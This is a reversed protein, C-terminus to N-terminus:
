TTWLQPPNAGFPPSSLCDQSPQHSTAPLIRSSTYALPSIPLPDSHSPCIFSLIHHPFQFLPCYQFTAFFYDFYGKGAGKFQPINHCEFTGFCICLFSIKITCHMVSTNAINCQWEAHSKISTVSFCYPVFINWGSQTRVMPSTVPFGFLIM